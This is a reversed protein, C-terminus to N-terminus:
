ASQKNDPTSESHPKNAFGNAVAQWVIDATAEANRGVYYEMTTSICAHRMLEMLTVPMVLPAWRFGFSRRLDHASAYKIKGKASEAVKIGAAKGMACITKSVWDLLVCRNGRQGILQFVYGQRKEVPTRLLFDHFEPVMPLLRDQYGKEAAARIRFMPRRGSLDVCLGRDDTWHLALAEGLRLGSCWLGELLYAWSEGRVATRAPAEGELPAKVQDILLEFEKRSLPRGKMGNVRGPMQVEPVVQLLGVLKAWSLASMLTALTSKITAESRGADRMAAGLKSIQSADLAILWKPNIHKEVANFASQVKGATRPALSPVVEAKYRKRFAEFTVFELQPLKGEAIQDELRAAFREAKRRESTGTTRTKKLGTIPDSWQAEFFKRGARLFIRVRVKM